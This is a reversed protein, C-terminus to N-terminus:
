TVERYLIAREGGYQQAQNTKVLLVLHTPPTITLSSPLGPEFGLM